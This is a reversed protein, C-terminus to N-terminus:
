CDGYPKPPEVGNEEQYALKAWYVEDTGGEALTSAMWQYFFRLFHLEAKIDDLAQIVDDDTLLDNDSV